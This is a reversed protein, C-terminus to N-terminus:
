LSPCAPQNSTWVCWGSAIPVYTVDNRWDSKQGECRAKDYLHGGTIQVKVGYNAYATEGPPVSFNYSNGITANVIQTVEHDIEAKVNATIVGVLIGADGAATVNVNTIIDLKDTVIVTKSTTSTFTVQAPSSSNNQDQQQSVVEWSQGENILNDYAYEPKCGASSTTPQNVPPTALSCGMTWWSSCYYFTQGDSSQYHPGGCNHDGSGFDGCKTLKGGQINYYTDCGTTILAVLLLIATMTLLRYHKQM